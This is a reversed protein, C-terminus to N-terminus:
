FQMSFLSYAETEKERENKAFYAFKRINNFSLRWVTNMANSKHM